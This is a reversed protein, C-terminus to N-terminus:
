YKYHVVPRPFAYMFLNIERGKLLNAVPIGMSKAVARAIDDKDCM